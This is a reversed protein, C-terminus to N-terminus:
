THDELVLESNQTYSASDRKTLRVDACGLVRAKLVEPACRVKRCMLTDGQLVSLVLFFDQLSIINQKGQM